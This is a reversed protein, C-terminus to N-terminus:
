SHGLLSCPAHQTHLSPHCWALKGDTLWFTQQLKGRQKVGQVDPMCGRVPVKGLWIARCSQLAAPQDQVTALLPAQMLHQEDLKQCCCCWLRCSLSVEEVVPTVLIGKGFMWQLNVTHTRPDEPFDMWLPRAVPLGSRHSEQFASNIHPLLRYRLGLAKRGAKITANWRYLEQLRLDTTVQTTNPM